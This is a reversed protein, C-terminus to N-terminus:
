SAAGMETMGLIIYQPGLIETGAKLHIQRKWIDDDLSYWVRIAEDMYPGGGYNSDTAFLFNSKVTLLVVHASTGGNLTSLIGDWPKIKIPIGNFSLSPTAAQVQAINPFIVGSTILWSYYADAFLQDVYIVKEALPIGMMLYDQAAYAQALASQAESPTIAGGPVEFTQGSPIVGSEIYKQIHTFVGNFKNWSWRGTVDAPRTVDGFYKNSFVDVSVGKEMFPMVNRFFVEYNNMEYDKFCGQYFEKVCDETYAYLEETRIKRQALRGVPSPILKCTADRRKIINQGGYIEIIPREFVVNDYVQWDGNEPSPIWNGEGDLYDAFQPVMLLEHMARANVSFPTTKLLPM